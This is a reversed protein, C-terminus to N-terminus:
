AYSNEIFYALRLFPSVVLAIHDAHYLYASKPIVEGLILLVPTMVVTAVLAGAQGFRSVAMATATATCVVVSLNTGVLVISFFKEPSELLRELVRGRWSGRKVLDRMRVKSCSVLATESGAFFGAALVTFAILLMSDITSM